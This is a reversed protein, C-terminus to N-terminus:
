WPLEVSVVHSSADPLIVRVTAYPSLDELKISQRSGPVAPKLFSGL